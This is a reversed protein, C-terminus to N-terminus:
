RRQHCWLKDLVGVHGGRAALHPALAGAKSAESFSVCLSIAIEFGIWYWDILCIPLLWYAAGVISLTKVGNM